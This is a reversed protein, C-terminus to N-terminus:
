KILDSFGEAEVLSRGILFDPYAGSESVTEISEVSIGSGDVRQYGVDPEASVPSLVTYGGQGSSGRTENNIRDVVSPAEELDTPMYCGTSIAEEFNSQWFGQHIITHQGNEVDPMAPTGVTHNDNYNSPNEPQYQSFYGAFSNVESDPYESINSTVIIKNNDTSGLSEPEVAAPARVTGSSQNGTYLREALNDFSCRNIEKDFGNEQLMFDEVDRVPARDSTNRTQNFDHIQIKMQSTTAVTLDDIEAEFNTMSIERLRNSQNVATSAWNQTTANRYNISNFAGKTTLNEVAEEVEERTTPTSVQEAAVALSDVAYSGQTTEWTEEVSNIYVPSETDYQVQSVSTFAM